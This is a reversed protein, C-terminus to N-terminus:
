MKAVSIIWENLMDSLTKLTKLQEFETNPNYLNVLLYEM